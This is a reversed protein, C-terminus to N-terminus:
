NLTPFQLPLIKNIGSEVKKRYVVNLKPFYLLAAPSDDMLIKQFDLYREKRLEHDVTKRADELDRDVRPSSYHSLNTKNQTSHWLSYQDPDQPIPQSILLAQFGQPIGSEVRIIAAIGIKNWSSIVKTGLSSLGPTVTLTIQSRQENNVKKLYSKAKDPDFTLDRTKDNFAWSLSPLPTKAKEEQAIDPIALSLALRLNKDALVPDKTNYFVGTLRNHTPIQKLRFLKSSNISSSDSVGLMSQIEGLDFAVKLIKEDPYFRIIVEPLKKQYDSGLVIKTVVDRNLVLYKVKLGGIGILGDAKLVPKNLLTPFPSFPESLDFEITKEDLYKVTVDNLDFRIDEAKVKSGDSWYLNDKLKFTYVTADNNVQWSAALKPKPTGTKDVEVLPTSILNTVTAPLNSKTYVGMVGESISPIVFRGYLFRGSLGVAVLLVLFLM